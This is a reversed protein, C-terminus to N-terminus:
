WSPQTTEIAISRSTDTVTPRAGVPADDGAGVLDFAGDVEGGVRGVVRAGDLGRPSARDAAHQAHEGIESARRDAGVQLDRRRNRDAAPQRRARRELDRDREGEVVDGAEREARAVEREGRLARLM